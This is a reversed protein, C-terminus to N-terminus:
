TDRLHRWGDPVFADQVEVQAAVAIARTACARGARSLPGGHRALPRNSGVAGASPSKGATRRIQLKARAWVDGAEDLIHKAVVPLRALDTLGGDLQIRPARPRWSGASRRAAWRSRNEACTRITASNWPRMSHMWTSISSRATPRTRTAKSQISRIMGLNYVNVTWGDCSLGLGQASV